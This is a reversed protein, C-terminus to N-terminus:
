IMTRALMRLVAAYDDSSAYCHFQSSGGTRIPLSGLAMAEGMNRTLRLIMVRGISRTSHNGFTYVSHRVDAYTYGIDFGMWHHRHEENEHAQLVLADMFRDWLRPGKTAVREETLDVPLTRITRLTEELDDLSFISEM